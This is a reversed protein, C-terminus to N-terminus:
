GGLGRIVAAIKDRFMVVAAGVSSGIAGVTLVVGMGIYQWRTLKEHTPEIRDLRRDTNRANEEIEQLRREQADLKRYARVRSDDAKRFERDLREEIARLGAIVEGLQQDSM